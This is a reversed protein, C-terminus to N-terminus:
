ASRRHAETISSLLQPTFHRDREVPLRLGGRVRELESLPFYGLEPYDSVVYGYFLVDDRSPDYETLPRHNCNSGWGCGERERTSGEIVYWTWHADPTFYKAVVRPDALKEQSYLLPIRRALEMTLLKMLDGGKRDYLSTQEQLSMAEAVQLGSSSLHIHWSSYSLGTRRQFHKCLPLM